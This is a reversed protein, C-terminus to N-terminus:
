EDKLLRFERLLGAGIVFTIVVYTIGFSIAPGNIGMRPILLIHFITVLLLMLINVFLVFEPKRLTYLFFLLLAADFAFPIYTLSLSRVLPISPSYAPPILLEYIFSPLGALVLLITSPIAMYYFARRTLKIVDKRLSVKSFEASLVQTISDISTIIVFIVRQAVSYHGADVTTLFYAILFLDARTTLNFLQTSIFYPMTFRLKIHSRVIKHQTLSRVIQRRGILVAFFVILPGVIGLIVITMAITLKGQFGLWVILIIKVINSINTATNIQLFREAANMADRIFNQWIYLLTSILTIAYYYNPLDLKFLRMDYHPLLAYILLLSASALTTQFIFNSKLFDYAKEKDPLLSPITAYLTAPIGFSLVNALLYSLALLISLVGFQYPDFFRFLLITYLGGIFFGLYNGLTNIIVNKTVTDKLQHKIGDM